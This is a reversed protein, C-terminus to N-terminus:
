ESSGACRRYASSRARASSNRSAFRLSAAALADPDFEEGREKAYLLAILPAPRPLSGVHTTLIRETSTKM